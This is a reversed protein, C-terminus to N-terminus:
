AITLNLVDSRHQLVLSKQPVYFNFIILIPMQKCTGVFVIAMDFDHEMKCNKRNIKGTVLVIKM